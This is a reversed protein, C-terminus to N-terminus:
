PEYDELANRAKLVSVIVRYILIFPMFVIFLLWDFITM